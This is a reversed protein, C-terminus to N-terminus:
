RGFEHRRIILAPQWVQDHDPVSLTLSSQRPLAAAGGTKPLSKRGANGDALRGWDSGTSTWRFEGTLPDIEICCLSIDGVADFRQQLVRNLGDVVTAPSVSLTAFAEFAARAVQIKQRGRDCGAHLALFLMTEAGSVRFGSWRVGNDPDHPVPLREVSWGAFPPQVDAEGPQLLEEIRNHRRPEPLDADDAQRSDLLQRSLAARELEAAIRGAIIELVTTVQGSVDGPQNRVLWLSGYLNSLSSVPVCVASQCEVPAQWKAADRASEMVIVNGTMARVDARSEGLHRASPLGSFHPGAALRQNLALADDDVLWVSASDFGGLEMASSLLSQLLNELRAKEDAPLSTAVCTALEIERSALESRTAQLENWLASIDDALRQSAPRDVAKRGPGVFSALDDIMLRQPSAAKAAGTSSRRGAPPSQFEVSWGTLQEFSQRLRGLPQSPIENGPGSLAVPAEDGFWIRPFSPAASHPNEQM